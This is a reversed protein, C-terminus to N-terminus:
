RERLVSGDATVDINGGFCQFIKLVPVSRQIGTESSLGILNEDLMLVVRKGEAVRACFGDGFIRPQKARWQDVRNLV